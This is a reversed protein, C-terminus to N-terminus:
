GALTDEDAHQRGKTGGRKNHEDKSDEIKEPIRTTSPYKQISYPSRSLIIILLRQRPLLRRRQLLHAINIPQLIHSRLTPRSVDQTARERLRRHVSMLHEVAKTCAFGGSDNWVSM